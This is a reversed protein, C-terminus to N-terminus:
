EGNSSCKKRSKYPNASSMKKDFIGYPLESLM